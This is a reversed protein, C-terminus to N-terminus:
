ECYAACINMPKLPLYQDGQTKMVLINRVTKEWPSGESTTWTVKYRAEYSLCVCYVEKPDQLEVLTGTPAMPTIGLVEVKQIQWMTSEKYSTVLGQVAAKEIPDSPISIEEPEDDGSGGLLGCGSFVLALSLLFIILSKKNM